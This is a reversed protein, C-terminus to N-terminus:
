PAPPTSCAGVGHGIVQVTMTSPNMTIDTWSSNNTVDMETWEANKNVTACLRYSGAALGTVNVVQHAFNPKYEDGWGVSIGM